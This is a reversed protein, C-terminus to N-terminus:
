IHLQGSPYSSVRGSQTDRIGTTTAGRSPETQYRQKTGQDVGKFLNAIFKIGWLLNIPDGPGM